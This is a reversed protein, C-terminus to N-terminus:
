NRQSTAFAGKGEYHHPLGTVRRIDDGLHPGEKFMWASWPQADTEVLVITTPIDTRGKLVERVARYNESLNALQSDDSELVLVAERGDSNCAAVLKPCKDEFARRVREVRFQELDGHLVSHVFLQSDERRRCEFALEFPLHESSLIVTEGTRMSGATNLILRIIECQLHGVNGRARIADGVRIKIVYTGPLIGALVSRLPWLLSNIRENDEIQGEFSELLTHEVAYAHSPSAWLEEVAQINRNQRDPRAWVVPEEGTRSGIIRRVFGCIAEQNTRRAM